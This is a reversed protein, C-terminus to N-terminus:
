CSVDNDECVSEIFVVGIKPAREQIHKHILERREITSNTADLIGVSGKQNLLYDLLEDLTEMAVKERIKAAEENKPDFFEATQENPDKAPSTSLSEPEGKVVTEEPMNSDDDREEPKETISQSMLIHAAQTPADLAGNAGRGHITSHTRRRGHLADRECSEGTAPNPGGAKRRRNGVNFIEANHQQWTLYRVLKKTIYSKGRAPLGVMVIVLKSAIDVDAIRGDPSVRSSTMGPVNLTTPPNRTRPTSTGSSQKM